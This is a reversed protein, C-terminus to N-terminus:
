NYTVAKPDARDLKRKIRAKIHIMDTNYFTIKFHQKQLLAKPPVILYIRKKRM